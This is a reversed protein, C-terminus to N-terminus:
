TLAKNQLLTAAREAIAITAANTNGSVLSPMVSADVVHLGAIGRLALYPDLVAEAGGMACTGVAHYGMSATERILAIWEADNEPIEVPLNNGVIHSALPQTQYIKEIFRGFYVLKAVDREDSLLRHDILPKDHPDTSRLRIEGRSEPRMCTGGLTIGPKKHMAPVGGSFDIALPIFSMSIDTENLDPSSKLGAMVHVTASAMPGKKTFLWRTLDRSITWASFPSNYTPVDVLKSISLGCHDQLNKGVPLDAVVNVGMNQLHSAPGLGSRMLIAPSQIAGGSIITERARIERAQNGRIVSLGVARGNELIVKDVLTETMIILNPRKRAKELYAVAVSRRRGGAATTLIDYVGFQDGACYEDLQPVGQNVFAEIVADSIPHRENARGVILPGLQGHFQSPPGQYNEAKLFFPLMSQWGWGRAGAAEWRDYDERNGRVYVLGNIGSSGGLMQGGSWGMTRGNISPDPESQYAWDFGPRGMMAFAGAPMTVLLNSSRDRGAEILIVRVAPNETLRAALVAGASGAGAIVFDATAETM